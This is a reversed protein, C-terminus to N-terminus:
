HVFLYLPAAGQGRASIKIKPGANDDTTLHVTYGSANVQPLDKILATNNGIRIIAKYTNNAHPTLLFSGMGFKLSQFKAVTDNKQNIVVGAIQMSNGDTGTVKFGVTTQVGNVLNGGEAFFQIAPTKAAIKAPPAPEALLNVITISKEFFVQPGFNKMWNTYARLKYNGNKLTVPIYFSGNGAGNKLEVKAQLVTTNADDLVDVYAVKSINVPANSGADVNYVKFWLIEGSLYFSKDTHVYIKEQLVQDNYQKFNQQIRELVQAKSSVAICALLLSFMTTKLTSRTKKM